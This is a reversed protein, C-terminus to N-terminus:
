GLGVNFCIGFKSNWVEFKLCWASVSDLDCFSTCDLSIYNCTMLLIASLLFSARDPKWPGEDKSKKKSRYISVFRPGGKSLFLKEKLVCDHLTPVDLFKFIYRSDTKCLYCFQRFQIPYEVTWKIIYILHLFFMYINLVRKGLSESYNISFIFAVLKRKSWSDTEEKDM